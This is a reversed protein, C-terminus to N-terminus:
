LIMGEGFGKYREILVALVAVTLSVSLWLVVKEIRGDLAVDVSQAFSEAMTAIAIMWILLSRGVQEGM